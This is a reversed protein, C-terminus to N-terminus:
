SSRRSRGMPSRSLCSESSVALSTRLSTSSARASTVCFPLCAPMPAPINPPAPTAPSIASPASVAQRIARSAVPMFTQIAANITVTRHVAIAPTRASSPRLLTCSAVGGASCVTSVILSSTWHALVWLGDAPLYFLGAIVHAVRQVGETVLGVDLGAGLLVDLPLLVSHLALDLVDHTARVLRRGRGALDLLLALLGDAGRLLVREPQRDAGDGGAEYGAHQDGGGPDLVLLDAVGGVLHLALDLVRGGLGDLAALLDRLIRSLAGLLGRLFATLLLRLLQGGRGLRTLRDRRAGSTPARRAM